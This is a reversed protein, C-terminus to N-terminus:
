WPVSVPITINAHLKSTALTVTASLIYDRARMFNKDYTTNGIVNFRGYADAGNIFLIKTTNSGINTSLGYSSNLLNIYTYDANYTFPGGVHSKIEIQNSGKLKMSWLFAGSTQNIINVEFNLGSVNRLEFFFINKANEIVTWNTAGSATGNETFNAYRVNNWNDLDLTVKVGEGHMAYVKSLNEKFNNMQKSFNGVMEISTGGLMTANRYASRVEDRSIKMLNAIDYKASDTGSESAVNSEFIISNLMVTTIVLGTAIIFGAILMFQANQNKIIRM